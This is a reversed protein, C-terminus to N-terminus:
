RKGRMTEDIMRRSEADIIAKWAKPLGHDPYIIRQVMWKTGVQHFGAYPSAMSLAIGASQLPAVAISNRMRHSDTLPPPERGKALTAPRLDAWPNGYPDVGRDFSDQILKGIKDSAATAIQSPVRALARMNKAIGGLKSLDGRFNQPM